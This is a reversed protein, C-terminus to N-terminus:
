PPGAPVAAALLVADIVSFIAPTAGIGLGLTLVPAVTFGPSKILSRVAYRLDLLLTEMM